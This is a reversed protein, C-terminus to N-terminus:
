GGTIVVVITVHGDGSGSGRTLASAIGGEDTDAVHAAVVFDVLTRFEDSRRRRERARRPVVFHLLFAVSRAVFGDIGTGGM